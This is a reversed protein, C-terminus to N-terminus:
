RMSSNSQFLKPSRPQFPPPSANDDISDRERRWPVRSFLENLDPEDPGPASHSGKPLKYHKAVKLKEELEAITIIDNEHCIKFWEIEEMLVSVQHTLSELESNKKDAESSKLKDALINMRIEMSQANDMLDENQQKLEEVQHNKLTNM